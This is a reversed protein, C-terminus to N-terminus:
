LAAFLEHGTPKHHMTHESLVLRRAIGANSLGQAILRLGYVTPRKM